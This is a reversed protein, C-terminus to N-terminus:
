HNPTVIDVTIAHFTESDTESYIPGTSRDGIRYINWDMHTEASITRSEIDHNADLDFHVGVANEQSSPLASFCQGGHCEAINLDWETYHYSRSEVSVDSTNLEFISASIGASVPPFGTGVSLGFSQKSTEDAPYENSITLNNQDSPSDALIVKFNANMGAVMHGCQGECEVPRPREPYFKLFSWRNRSGAPVEDHEHVKEGDANYNEDDAVLYSAHRYWNEVYENPPYSTTRSRIREFEGDIPEWDTAM